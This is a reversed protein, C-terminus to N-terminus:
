VGRTHVAADGLRGLRRADSRAARQQGVPQSRAPGAPGIASADACAVLNVGRQEPRRERPLPLTRRLPLRLAASVTQVVRRRRGVACGGTRRHRVRSAASAEPASVHQAAHDHRSDGRPTAAREPLLSRTCELGEGGARVAVAVAARSTHRHGRMAVVRLQREGHAPELLQALEDSWEPENWGSPM